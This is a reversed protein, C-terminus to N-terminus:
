ALIMELDRLAGHLMRTKKQLAAGRLEGDCCLNEPSLDCEISSLLEQVDDNTLRDPDMLSRKTLKNWYNKQEIYQRLYKM